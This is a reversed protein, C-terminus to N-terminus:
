MGVGSATGRLLMGGHALEDDVHVGAAHLHQQDDALGIRDEGGRGVPLEAVRQLLHRQAHVRAEEVVLGGFLALPM